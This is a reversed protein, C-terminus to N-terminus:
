EELIWESWKEVVANINEAWWQSNFLLTKGQLEPNTPLM